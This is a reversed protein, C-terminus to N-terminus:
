RAHAPEPGAPLAPKVDSGFHELLWRRSVDVMERQWDDFTLVHNARPIVHVQYTKPLASLKLSHRAVFKEEFEWHLRDSGGFILLMPRKSELMTFFAPPFLPNANDAEAPPAADPPAVRRAKFPHTVSRWIAKYDSQLTLLRLWASPRWLKNVYHRRM